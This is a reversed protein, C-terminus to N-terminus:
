DYTHTMYDIGLADFVRTNYDNFPSKEILDRPRVYMNPAEGEGPRTYATVKRAMFAINPWEERDILGPTPCMGEYAIDLDHPMIVLGTEERVERALGIRLAWDRSGRSMILDEPDVKGGPLGILNHNTKRCVALVKGQENFHLLCVNPIIMM